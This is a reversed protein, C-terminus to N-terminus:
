FSGRRVMLYRHVAGKVVMLLDYRSVPKVLYDTVGHKMLTIAWEIDQYVATVVVPIAPYRMHFYAPAEVGKIKATRIDCIMASIEDRRRGSGLLLVAQESDPAEVVTYGAKRLTDQITRRANTDGEVVLIRYHKRSPEATAAGM